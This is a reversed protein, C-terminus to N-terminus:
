EKDVTRNSLYPLLPQVAVRLRACVYDVDRATLGITSSELARMMLNVAEDEALPQHSPLAARAEVLAPILADQAAQYGIYWDTYVDNVTTDLYQGDYMDFVTDSVPGYAKCYYNEFAERMAQQKDQEVTESHKNTM